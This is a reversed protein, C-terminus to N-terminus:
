IGSRVSLYSWFLVCPLPSSQGEPWPRRALSVHLSRSRVQEYQGQELLRVDKRWRMDSPPLLKEMGPPTSNLSVAWKSFNFRCLAAQEHQASQSMLCMVEPCDTVPLPGACAIGSSVISM